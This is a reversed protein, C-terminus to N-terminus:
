LLFCWQRHRLWILFCWLMNWTLCKYVHKLNPSKKGTTWTCFGEQQVQTLMVLRGSIFSKNDLISQPVMTPYAAVLLSTSTKWTISQVTYTIFPLSLLLRILSDAYLRADCKKFSTSLPYLNSPSTRAIGLHKLVFFTFFFGVFSQFFFFFFSQGLISKYEM